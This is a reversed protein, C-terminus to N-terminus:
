GRLIKTGGLIVPGAIILMILYKYEAIWELISQIVEIM